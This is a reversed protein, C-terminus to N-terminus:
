HFYFQSHYRARLLGIYFKCAEIICGLTVAGSDPDLQHTGTGQKWLTNLCHKSSKLLITFKYAIVVETQKIVKLFYM